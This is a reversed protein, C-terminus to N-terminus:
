VVEVHIDTEIKVSHGGATYTYYGDAEAGKVFNSDLKVTNNSGTDKIVLDSGNSTVDALTLNLTTGSGVLKVNEASVINALSIDGNDTTFVVLDNGGKLDYTFTATGSLAIIDDDETHQYYSKEYTIETKSGGRGTSLSVLVTKDRWEYNPITAIESADVTLTGKTNVEDLQASSLDGISSNYFAGEHDNEDNVVYYASGGKGYSVRFNYDNGFTNVDGIYFIISGNEDITVSPTEAPLYELLNKETTKVVDVSNDQYTIIIDGRQYNNETTKVVDVSNDQYTIITDGRPYDHETTKVVRVTKVDPNSAKYAEAEALIHYDIDVNRLHNIRIDTVGIPGIETDPNTTAAMNLGVVQEPSLNKVQGDSYFLFVNGQADVSVNATPNLTEITEKLVKLEETTLHNTDYVPVPKNPAVPQHTAQEQSSSYYNNTDGDNERAELAFFLAVASVLGVGLWAWPLETAWSIAEDGLVNTALVSENLTAIAYAPEGNAPMYAYYHGNEALGAVLAPSQYYGEIIIDTDNSGQFRIHLDEGFRETQISQPALHTSPDQLEYVAKNGAHKIKVAQQAQNTPVYITQPNGSPSKIILQMTM